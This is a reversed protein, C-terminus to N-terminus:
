PMVLMMGVALQNPNSIQDRNANYIDRWRAQDGYQRRAISYLTDGRQVTYSGGGRAAAGGTSAYYNGGSSGTDVAQGGGTNAYPQQPQAYYGSSAGNTTYGASATAGPDAYPDTASASLDANKKACGALLAVAMGTMMVLLRRMVNETELTEMGLM